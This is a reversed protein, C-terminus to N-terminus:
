LFFFYPYLITVECRSYQGRKKKKEAIKKKVEKNAMAIANSSISNCLAGRPYPLGDRPKFYQRISMASDSASERAEDLHQDILIALTCSLTVVM